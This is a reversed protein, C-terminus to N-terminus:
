LSVGHNDNQTCGIFHRFEASSHTIIQVVVFVFLLTNM